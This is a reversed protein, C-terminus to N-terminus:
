QMRKLARNWHPGRVSGHRCSARHFYYIYNITHQCSESSCILTKVVGLDWVHGNLRWHAANEAPIPLSYLCCHKLLKRHRPELSELIQLPPLCPTGCAMSTRETSFLIIPHNNSTWVCVSVFLSMRNVLADLECNPWLPIDWPIVKCLM